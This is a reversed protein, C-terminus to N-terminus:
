QILGRLRNLYKLNIKNSLALDLVFVLSIFLLIIVANKINNQSKHLYDEKNDNIQKNKDSLIYYNIARAKRIYIIDSETINYNAFHKETMTYKGLKNIELSLIISNFIFSVIIIYIIFIIILFSLSITEMDYLIICLFGTIFTIIISASAILLNARSEIRDRRSEENRYLNSCYQLAQEIREATDLKLRNEINKKEELYSTSDM